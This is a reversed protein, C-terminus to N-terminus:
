QAFALGLGESSFEGLGQREGEAFHPTGGDSHFECPGEQERRGLLPRVGHTLIVDGTQAPQNWARHEPFFFDDKNIKDKENKDFMDQLSRKSAGQLKFEFVGPRFVHCGACNFKDVVQRGKVEALRDPTPQNLYSFPIPDGVLGLVFTMVAERHDAEAKQKRALFDDTSEAKRPKADPDLPKYVAEAWQKRQNFDVPDEAAKMKVRAFKFQPMRARDDWALLKNYDYSRPELLKQNLFGERSQHMLADYFFREYLPGKKVSLPYGDEDVLKDVVQTKIPKYHDKVYNAVDDFALRNPDKKGWDALPAGILKANDFGPIDHCGFCGLRGIAKKGAFHLMAERRGQPDNNAQALLEVLEREDAGLDKARTASLKGEFLDNMEYRALTRVLYVEALDKLDKDSPAAVDTTAWKEGQIDEAVKGTKKDSPIDQALLWAAVDAVEQDSLHTVPMRTRPNHITPNKIWNTLWLRAQKTDGGNKVLKEKVQTLNPGFDAESPIAPWNDDPENTAAHSHCALCGKKSFLDRGTKANGQIEGLKKDLPAIEPLKKDPVRTGHLALMAKAGDLQKKEFDTLKDGKSELKAITEPLQFYDRSSKFLYHVIGHIEAAPLKEQGTGQLAHEDNNSLGYYHPMKTDPRFERPALLWKVAWAENTKESVRYLSPAM